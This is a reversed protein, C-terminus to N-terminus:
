HFSDDGDHAIPVSVMAEKILLPILPFELTIQAAAEDESCIAEKILLPILPFM